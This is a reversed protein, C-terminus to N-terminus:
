HALCRTLDAAAGGFGSVPFKVTQPGSLLSRYEVLLVGAHSVSEVFQEPHDFFFADEDVSPQLRSAVPREQDFRYKVRRRKDEIDDSEPSLVSRTDIYISLKRERCRVVLRPARVSGDAAEALVSVTVTQTDDMASKAKQIYWHSSGVQDPADKAAASLRDLFVQSAAVSVGFM